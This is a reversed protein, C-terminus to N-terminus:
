VEVKVEYAFNGNDDVERISVALVKARSEYTDVLEIIDNEVESEIFPLTNDIVDPNVGLKRMFPVEYQRTRILNLVNQIIRDEGTLGWELTTDNSSITRIM